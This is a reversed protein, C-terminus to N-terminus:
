KRASTKSSKASRSSEAENSTNSTATGSVNPYLWKYFVSNARSADVMGRFYEHLNKEILKSQLTQFDYKQNAYDDLLHSYERASQAWRKAIERSTKLLDEYLDSNNTM